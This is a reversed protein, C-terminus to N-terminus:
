EWEDFSVYWGMVSKPSVVSPTAYKGSTSALSHITWAHPHMALAVEGASAVLRITAAEEDRMIGRFFLRPHHM